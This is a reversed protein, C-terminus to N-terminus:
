KRRRRRPLLEARPLGRDRSLKDHETEWLAITWAFGIEIIWWAAAAFLAACAGPVVSPWDTGFLAALERSIAIWAVVALPISLLRRYRDLWRVRKALTEIRDAPAAAM